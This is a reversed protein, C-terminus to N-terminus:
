IGFLIITFCNYRFDLRFMKFGKLLNVAFFQDNWLATYKLNTLKCRTFTSKTDWREIQPGRKVKFHKHVQLHAGHHSHAPDAGPLGHVPAEEPVDKHGPKHSDRHSSQETSSDHSEEHIPDKWIHSRDDELWYVLLTRTHPHTPPTQGVECEYPRGARARAGAEGHGTLPELGCQEGLRYPTM